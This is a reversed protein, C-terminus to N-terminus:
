FRVGISSQSVYVPFLEDKREGNKKSIRYEAKLKGSTSERKPIRKIRNWEIESEMYQYTVLNDPMHLVFPPSDKKILNKDEQPSNLYSRHFLSFFRPGHTIERADYFKM